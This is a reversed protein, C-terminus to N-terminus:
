RTARRRAGQHGRRRLAPSRRGSARVFRMLEDPVRDVGLRLAVCASSTPRRSIAWTSRSTGPSRELPHTFGARAAFAFVVRAHGLRQLVEDLLAFSDEDMAHAADWAFTHPRDECLSQVM